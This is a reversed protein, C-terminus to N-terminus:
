KMENYVFIPEQCRAVELTLLPKQVKKLCTPSTRMKFFNSRSVVINDSRCKQPFIQCFSVCRLHFICFMFVSLLMLLIFLATLHQFHHLLLNQNSLLPFLHDEHTTCYQLILHEELVNLHPLKNCTCNLCFDTCKYRRGSEIYHWLSCHICLPATDPNVRCIGPHQYTRLGVQKGIYKTQHHSYKM